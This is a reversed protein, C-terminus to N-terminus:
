KNGKQEDLWCAMEELRNALRRAQAPSIGIVSTEIEIRSDGNIWLALQRNTIDRPRRM